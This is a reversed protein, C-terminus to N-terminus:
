DNLAGCTIWGFLIQREAPTLAPEPPPPMQCTQLMLNMDGAFPSIQDFTQFPFKEARGGPAHCKACHAAIIPAADLTFTPAPM